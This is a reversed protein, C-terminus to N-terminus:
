IACHCSCPAYEERWHTIPGVGDATDFEWRDFGRRRGGVVVGSGVMFEVHRNIPPRREAMDIWAGESM